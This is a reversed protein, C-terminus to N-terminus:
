LLANGAALLRMVENRADEEAGYHEPLARQLCAVMRETDADGDGGLAAAWARLTRSDRKVGRPKVDLGLQRAMDRVSGGSLIAMPDGYRLDKGKRIEWRWLHRSSSFYPELRVELVDGQECELPPDVPLKYNVWHTPESDPGTSLGLGEVLTAVFWTGLANVPGSHEVELVVELLAPTRDQPVRLHACVRGPGRLEDLKVRHALPRNALRSRLAKLDVGEVREFRKFDNELGSDWLPAAYLEFSQPLFRPNPACQRFVSQYLGQIEEEFGFHGLMEGLVVTPPEAFTADRVDTTLVEVIEQVDNDQVVQKALEAIASMEVAYVKRAGARAALVALIGTGSGVDVVVDGPRVVRQIAAAFAKNRAADILMMAQEGIDAYGFVSRLM